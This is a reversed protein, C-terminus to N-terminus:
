KGAAADQLARIDIKKMKLMAQMVRDAKARDTDSLLQPLVPPVIQWWLGYKDKLWGCQSEEGGGSTLKEWKDDIEEQTECNVYMSVAENFKFQPGGNLAFFEQGELEFTAGTIKEGAGPMVSTIKANKFISSYFNIAEEAKDDFWLFPTIKKM